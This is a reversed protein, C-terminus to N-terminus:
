MWPSSPRRGKPASSRIAPWFSGYPKTTSGDETWPPTFAAGAAVIRRRHLSLHAPSPAASDATLIADALEFLADGRRYLCEYLSRRFSHLADYPEM